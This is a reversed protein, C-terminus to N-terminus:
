DVYRYVASYNHSKSLTLPDIYFMVVIIDSAGNIDDLGYFIKETNSEQM